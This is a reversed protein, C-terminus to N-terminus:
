FYEDLFQLIYSYLYKFNIKNNLSYNSKYNKCYYRIKNGEKLLCPKEFYTNIDKNFYKCTSCGRHFLINNM